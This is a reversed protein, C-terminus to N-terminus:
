QTKIELARWNNIDAEDGGFFQVKIIFNTRITAGFGNQSDVYSKITYTNESDAKWNCEYPFDATSPSKLKEKIFDKAMLYAMVHHDEPEKTSTSTNTKQFRNILVAASVIFIIIFLLCGINKAAQKPRDKVPVEPMM